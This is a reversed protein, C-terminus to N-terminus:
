LDSGRSTVQCAFYYHHLTDGDVTLKDSSEDVVEFPGTLDSVRVVPAGDALTPLIGMCMRALREAAVGNEAWVNFGFGHRQVPGNQPGGDDRVTVMRPVREGKPPLKPRVLVDSAYLEPRAELAVSLGAVIAGTVIPFLIRLVPLV